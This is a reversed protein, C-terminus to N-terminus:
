GLTEISGLKAFSRFYGDPEDRTVQEVICVMGLREGVTPATM